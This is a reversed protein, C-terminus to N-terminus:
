VAGSSSCVIFCINRNGMPLSVCFILMYAFSRPSFSFTFRTQGRWVFSLFLKDENESFYIFFGWVYRYSFCYAAKLDWPVASGYSLMEWVTSTVANLRIFAGCIKLPPLTIGNHWMIITCFVDDHIASWCSISVWLCNCPIFVYVHMGACVSVSATRSVRRCCIQSGVWRTFHELFIRNITCGSWNASKHLLLATRGCGAYIWSREAASVILEYTEPLVRYFQFFLSM